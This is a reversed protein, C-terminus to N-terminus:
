GGVFIECDTSIKYHDTLILTVALFGFILRCFTTTGGCPSPGSKPPGNMRMDHARARRGAGGRGPWALARARPEGCERREDMVQHTLTAEM